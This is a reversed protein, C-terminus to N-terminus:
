AFFILISFEYFSFFTVVQKVEFLFEVTFSESWDPNLNNVKNTRGIKKLQNTRRDIEYFVLFPYTTSLTHFHLPLDKAAFFIDIKELNTTM